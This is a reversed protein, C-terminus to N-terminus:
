STFPVIRFVDDLNFNFTGGPFVVSTSGFQDTVVQGGPFAVSTIGNTSSRSSLVETVQIEADIPVIFGPISVSTGDKLSFTVSGGPFSVSTDAGKVDVRGGPFTVDTSISTSGSSSSISLPLGIGILGFPNINLDIGAFPVEVKVSGFSDVDVSVPVLRSLFSLM